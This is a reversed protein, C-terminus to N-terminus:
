LLCFFISGEQEIAVLDFEEYIDTLLYKGLNYLRKALGRGYDKRVLPSLKNLSKECIECIRESFDNVTIGGHEADDKFICGGLYKAVLYIFNEISEKFTRLIYRSKKTEFNSINKIKELQNKLKGYTKEIVM